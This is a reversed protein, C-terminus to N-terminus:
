QALSAILETPNDEDCNDESSPDLVEVDEEESPMSKLERSSAAVPELESPMSTVAATLAATVAARAGSVCHCVSSVVICLWSLSRVVILLSTVVSSFSRLGKFLTVPAKENSETPEESELMAVAEALV